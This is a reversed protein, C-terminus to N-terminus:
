SETKPEKSVPAGPGGARRAAAQRAQSVRAAMVGAVMEKPVVVNAGLPNIVFGLAPSEKGQADRRFLMNAYDEFKLAFFPLERNKEAWKRYELQDTFGMFFKRGDPASLMPFQVRSGPAIVPEGDAGKGPEPEVLAPTQLSAKVLETVFLNRHEPTDEEKMLEICGVLMPNSVTRNFEM